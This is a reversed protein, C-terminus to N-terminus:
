TGYIRRLLTLGILTGCLLFSGFLSVHCIDSVGQQFDVLTVTQLEMAVTEEPIEENLDPLDSAAAETQVPETFPEAGSDSSIETQNEYDYRDSFANKIPAVRSRMIEKGDQYVKVLFTLNTSIPPYKDRYKDAYFVIDVGDKHVAFEKSYNGTEKKEAKLHKVVTETYSLIDNTLRVIDTETM